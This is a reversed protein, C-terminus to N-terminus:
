KNEFCSTNTKLDQLLEQRTIADPTSVCVMEDNVALYAEKGGADAIYCDRLGVNALLFCAVVVDAFYEQHVNIMCARRADLSGSAPFFPKANAPVQMGWARHLPDDVGDWDFDRNSWLVIEDFRLLRTLTWTGPGELFDRWYSPPQQSMLDLWRSQYPQPCDMQRLIQEAAAKCVFLHKQYALHQADNDASAVVITTSSPFELSLSRVGESDSVALLHGRDELRAQWADSPVVEYM